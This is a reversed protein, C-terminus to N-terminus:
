LIVHRELIEQVHGRFLCHDVGAGQGLEAFEPKLIYIKKIQKDILRDPYRNFLLDDLTTGEDNIGRM